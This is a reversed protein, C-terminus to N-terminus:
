QLPEVDHGNVRAILQYGSAGGLGVGLKDEDVAQHARAKLELALVRLQLAKAEQQEDPTMGMNGEQIWDEDFVDYDVVTGQTATTNTYQHGAVWSWGGYGPPALDAVGNYLANILPIDALTITSGLCEQWKSISTYLAPRVGYSEILDCAARVDAVPNNLPLEADAACFNLNSWERGACARGSEVHAQPSRSTNLAIYAAEILGEQAANWLTEEAFPNAAAADWMGIWALRIGQGYFVRFQDRTILGSFRSADIGHIVGSM